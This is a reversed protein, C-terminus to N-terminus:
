TNQTINIRVKSIVDYDPSTEPYTPTEASEQAGPRQGQTEESSLSLVHSTRKIWIFNMFTVTSVTQQSTISGSSPLLNSGPEVTERNYLLPKSQKLYLRHTLASIKWNQRIFHLGIMLYSSFLEAHHNM